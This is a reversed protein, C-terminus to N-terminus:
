VSVNQLIADANVNRCFDIGEQCNKITPNPKVKDYVHYTIGEKELVEIVQDAVGCQKLNEDTVVLINQFNRAKIEPGLNERANWGFYSTENLIIRNALKRGEM